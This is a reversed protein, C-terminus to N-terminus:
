NSQPMHFRELDPISGPEGANALLNKVVPGGPFDLDQCIKNLYQNYLTLNKQGEIIHLYLIYGDWM